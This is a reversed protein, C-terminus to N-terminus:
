GEAHINLKYNVRKISAILTVVGTCLFNGVFIATFGVDRIV